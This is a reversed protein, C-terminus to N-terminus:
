QFLSFIYIYTINIVNFYKTSNLTWSGTKPNFKYEVDDLRM